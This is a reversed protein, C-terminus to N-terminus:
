QQSQEETCPFVRSCLAPNLAAFMGSPNAFGDVPWVHLMWVDRGSILDANGGCSTLASAGEAVLRGNVLCMAWHQHWQAGGDGFWLPVTESHTFYSLGVLSSVLENGEFLLMAPNAIDFPEVVASWKIWHAGIGPLFRSALVYGSDKAAQANPFKSAVSNAARMETRITPSADLTEAAGRASEMDLHQSRLADVEAATPMVATKLKQIAEVDAASVPLERAAEAPTFQGIGVSRRAAQEADSMTTATPKADRDTGCSSSAAILLGCALGTRLRM